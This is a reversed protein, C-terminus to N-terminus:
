HVKQLNALFWHLGRRQEFCCSSLHSPTRLIDRAKCRIRSLRQLQRCQTLDNLVNVDLLSVYHGPPDRATAERQASPAAETDAAKAKMDSM